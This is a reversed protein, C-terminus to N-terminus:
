PYQDGNWRSVYSDNCVLDHMGQTKSPLVGVRKCAGISGIPRGDARLIDCRIGSWREWGSCDLTEEQGDADLDYKLLHHTDGPSQAQETALAWLEDSTYELVADKREPIDESLLRARGRSYHFTQTGEHEDTHVTFAMGEDREVMRPTGRWSCFTAKTLVVKGKAKVSAFLYCPPAGNGGPSAQVLADNRSDGDFDAVFLVDLDTTIYLDDRIEGKKGEPLNKDLDILVQTQGGETALLQESFWSRPTNTSYRVAKAPPAPLKLGLAKAILPGDLSSYRHDRVTYSLGGMGEADPAAIKGAVSYRTDGRFGVGFFDQGQMEVRKATFFRSPFLADALCGAPKDPTGCAIVQPESFDREEKEGGLWYRENEWFYQQLAALAKPHEPALTAARIALDLQEPASLKTDTEAQQLLRDPDPQERGLGDKSVEGELDGCRVHVRWRDIDKIVQCKTGIPLMALVETRGEGPPTLPLEMVQVYESRSCACLALFLFVAVHRM